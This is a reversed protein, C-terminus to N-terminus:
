YIGIEKITHRKGEFYLNIKYKGKRVSVEKKEYPTFLTDTQIVAKANVKEKPKLTHEVYPEICVEPAQNGKQKLYRDSTSETISIYLKGECPNGGFIYAEQNMNQVSAEVEIEEGITYRDKDTKAEFLLNHQKAEKTSNLTTDNTKPATSENHQKHQIFISAVFIILLILIALYFFRKM